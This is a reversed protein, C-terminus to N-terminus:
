RRGAAPEGPLRSAYYYDIDSAPANFVNFVDAVLRAGPVIEYGMQVNWLTSSESRVSNDEILPRPGFYRVRVSGFFPSAGYSVGGSLVTEVAGPVRNGVPDSDRYRARSLALDADLTVGPLPSYDNALEIGDRRSPRSPETTGADGTFVLESDLDLGWLALTTQLHPVLVSRIGIEAGKARALPTM